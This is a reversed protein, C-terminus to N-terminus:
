PTKAKEAEALRAEAEKASHLDLASKLKVAAELLKKAEATKGLALKIAGAHFLLPAERTGLRMARDSEVQAEKDKGARHLAWAYADLTAIDGRHKKEEALLTVAEDVHENRTAWFLGLTRPDTQKGRKELEAVTARAAAEDGALTQADALLWATEALPSLKYAKDLYSVALKGEGRAIAVRGKGVLAPPFDAFTSLARDFGANAGAVDGQHWFITAAQVLTWALPEPDSTDKGADIALRVAEKAGPSDNRLWKFYSARVYSALNPKLSMMRAGAKEAAEINGLELEADSLVGLAVLDDDRRALITEATQKAGGFDHQNLQVQARLGLALVSQADGELMITAVAAAHQFYGPDQTERAKRIWARGLIAWYDSTPDLKRQKVALQGQRILRDVPADGKVEALALAQPGGLAPMSASPSASSSAVVASPAAVSSAASPAPPQEKRCGVVLSLV